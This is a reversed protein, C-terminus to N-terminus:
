VFRGDVRVLQTHGGSVLLAVFPPEPPEDELLPALLHGEMHHVAVAPVDLAPYQQLGTNSATEQELSVECGEDHLFHAIEEVANRAGPAHYKGVIVVHAFRLPRNWRTPTSRHEPPMSM